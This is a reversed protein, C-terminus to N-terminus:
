VRFLSDPKVALVSCSIQRLVTDTTDGILLGGVDTQGVTGIVLVDPQHVEICNLIVAAANGKHFHVDNADAPKGSRVLMGDLSEQAALRVDDIYRELKDLTMKEGLLEEDAVDWAAVVHLEAGSTGALSAGLELLVDNLALDEAQPDVAVLIRECRVERGPAELWVPCPCNRVLRMDVPGMIGACDTQLMGAATKIVLHFGDHVVERVIEVFPRGRILETRYEIDRELLPQCIEDLRDKREQEVVERMPRHLERLKDSPGDVVDVVKLKVSNHRALQVARDLSPHSDALANEYVLIKRIMTSAIDNTAPEENISGRGCNALM